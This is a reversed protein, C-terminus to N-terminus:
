FEQRPFRRGYTRARRHSPTRRCGHWLIKRRRRRPIRYPEESRSSRGRRVRRFPYASQFISQRNVIPLKIRFAYNPSSLEKRRKKLVLLRTRAISQTNVLSSACYQPFDASLFWQRKPKLKGLRLYLIFFNYLDCVSLFIHPTHPPIASYRPMSEVITLSIHTNNISQKPM